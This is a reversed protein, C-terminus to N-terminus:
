RARFTRERTIWREYTYPARDLLARSVCHQIQRWVAGYPYDTPHISIRMLPNAKLSQFLYANWALSVTRRWASRTSWVLSQSQYTQGSRLDTVSALRTTYEMGTDSLAAAAEDGLLWAPAIFGDPKLGIREFDTRARTVLETATARDLDYFEGEDATYVRTAFITRIGEATKRSRLHHYGHIVIEHGIRAQEKLWDCFPQDELFHGQGHHDAVVLLSCHPLGIAALERLVAACTEQNAPTVDHLSVVVSHPHLPGTRSVAKATGHSAGDDGFTAPQPRLPNLREM